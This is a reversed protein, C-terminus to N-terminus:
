RIIFANEIGEFGVGAKLCNIPEIIMNTSCGRSAIVTYSLEVSFYDFPFMLFQTESESYDYKDFPSPRKPAIQDVFIKGGYIQGTKTIEIPVHGLFSELLEGPQKRGIKQLNLWCVALMKGQWTCTRKNRTTVKSGKDEFYLIGTEESKPILDFYDENNACIKVGEEGSEYVIMSAPIKKIKDQIKLHLVSVCGSTKSLFDLTSFHQALINSIRDNM